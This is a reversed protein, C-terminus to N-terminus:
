LQKFKTVEEPIYHKKISLLPTDHMYWMRYITYTLLSSNSFTQNIHRIDDDNNDYNDDNDNDRQEQFQFGASCQGLSNSSHDDTRTTELVQSENFRTVM